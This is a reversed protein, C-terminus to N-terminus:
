PRMEAIIPHKMLHYTDHSFDETHHVFKPGSDTCNKLDHRACLPNMIQGHHQMQQRSTTLEKFRDAHEDFVPKSQVTRKM